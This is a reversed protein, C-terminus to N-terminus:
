NNIMKTISLLTDQFVLNMGAASGDVNQAWVTLKEGNQLSIPPFTVGVHTGNNVNYVQGLSEFCTAIENGDKRLIYRGTVPNPNSSGRLIFGTLEITYLGNELIKISNTGSIQAYTADSSNFVESVPTMQIATLQPGTGGPSGFAYIQYYANYNESFSEQWATGNFFYKTQSTTSFIELGEAPNVIADRQATTMKPILLGKATSTIDLAASAHPVKTGIGVQAFLPLTMLFMVWFLLLKQNMNIQNENLKIKLNNCNEFLNRLCVIKNQNFKVYTEFM